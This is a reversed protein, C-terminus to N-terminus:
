PNNHLAPAFHHKRTAAALSRNGDRLRGKDQKGRANFAILMFFMAIFIYIRGRVAPRRRRATMRAAIDQM